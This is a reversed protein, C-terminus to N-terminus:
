PDLSLLNTRGAGILVVDDRHIATVKLDRVHDGVFVVRGNIMASARQPSYVISQLKLPAPPPEANAVQNTDTADSITAAANTNASNDPANAITPKVSGTTSMVPPTAPLPSAEAPPTPASQESPLMHAAVPSPSSGRKSLEWLLLLALLAVLTLSIPLMLGLGHRAPQVSPEVPRFQAVPAPDAPPTDLQAQKARRLADNILSM